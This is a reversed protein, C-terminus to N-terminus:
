ATFAVHDLLEYILQIQTKPWQRIRWSTLMDKAEASLFGMFRGWYFQEERPNDINLLEFLTQQSEPKLLSRFVTAMELWRLFETVEFTLIGQRERRHPVFLQYPNPFFRVRLRDMPFRGEQYAARSLLGGMAEKKIGGCTPFVQILGKLDSGHYLLLEQLWTKLDLRELTLLFHNDDPIHRRYKGGAYIGEMKLLHKPIQNVYGWVVTTIRAPRDLHKAKALIALCTKCYALGVEKLPAYIWCRQCPKTFGSVPPGLKEGPEPFLEPEKEALDLVAMLEAGNRCRRLWDFTNLM